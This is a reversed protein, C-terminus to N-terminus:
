AGVYTFAAWHYPHAEDRADPEAAFLERWVVRAAESAMPHASGPLRAQFHAAKEGNTTDRLWLQATRLADPPPLRDGTRWLEYFRFLLMATALGPVSWLSAVVGGAGAQLLGTPLSVVEDPLEDGPIGTECASLVGLRARLRIALVDRLRLPEEGAMLVGSELPHALDAWGHCSLHFLEARALAGRVSERTAQGGELLEHDPFGKLAAGVEVESFPLELEPRGLAPQDVVVAHEGRSARAAGRAAALARANPAYTFAVEDCVYRRAGDSPGETWASHLPLVGLLGAPVLVARRTEGLADLVDAAAAEWLWSTVADIARWWDERREEAGPFTARYVRYANRYTLVQEVLSDQTLRPLWVTRVAGDEPRVVLAFGGPGAAGLYVLPDEGASALVAAASPLALFGEYGAVSRIEEIAGDLERRAQELAEPLTEGRLGEGAVPPDTFLKRWGAAARRYRDELDSRGAASLRDLEARDLELAESLLMARGAELAELAQAGGDEGKAAAYAAVLPLGQAAELWTEKQARTLQARFLSQMAELGSAYAEAAEGFARRSLAWDGWGRAAHVVVTPAAHRGLECAKRYADTARAEDDVDGSASASKTLALALNAWYSPLDAQSSSPSAIALRLSEIARELVAPDRDALYAAVLAMGLNSLASTRLASREPATAAAKEYASIAEDLSPTRSTRSSAAARRYREFLANGLGNVYSAYNPADEPSAAVAEGARAIAADLDEASGRLRFRVLLAGALHTLVLPRDVPVRTASALAREHASIADELDQVSGTAAHRDSLATGLDTSYSPWAPADEPAESVAARFADVAEDLLRPTSELAYAARLCSGLEHLVGPRKNSGPLLEGLLRRCLALAGELDAREGLTDYRAKLCTAKLALREHAATPSSAAAVAEDLAALARDLDAVESSLNWRDLLAVALGALAFGRSPSPDGGLRELAQEILEIGRALDDHSGTRRHRLMLSGGLRELFTPDDPSESIGAELLEIARELDAPRGGRQYREQLALPLNALATRRQPSADDAYALAPELAEVARDLLAADNTEPYATLFEAALGNLAQVATACADTGLLRTLTHIMRAPDGQEGMAVFALLDAPGLRAGVLALQQIVKRQPTRLQELGGRVEDPLDARADASEELLRRASRAADLASQSRFRAYREWSRRALETLVRARDAADPELVAAFYLLDLGRAVAREDPHSGLAAGIETLRIPFSPAEPHTVIAAGELERIAAELEDARGSERQRALRARGLNRAILDLRPGVNVLCLSPSVAPDRFVNFAAQWCRIARDVVVPDPDVAVLERMLVGADAFFSLQAAPDARMRRDSSLIEHWAAVADALRERERGRVYASAAEDAQEVAARVEAPMLPMHALARESFADEIGRELLATFAQGLVTFADAGVHDGWSRAAEALGGVAQELDASPLGVRQVYEQLGWWTDLEALDRAPSPEREPASLAAAVGRAVPHGTHVSELLRRLRADREEPTEGSLRSLKVDL